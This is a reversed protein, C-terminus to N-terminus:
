LFYKNEKSFDIVGKTRTIHIRLPFSLMLMDFIHSVENVRIYNFKIHSIWNYSPM